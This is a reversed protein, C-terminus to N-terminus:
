ENSVRKNPVTLRNSINKGISRRCARLSERLNFLRNRHAFSPGLNLHSADDWLDETVETTKRFFLFDGNRHIHSRKVHHVVSLRLEIGVSLSQTIDSISSFVLTPLTNSSSYHVVNLEAYVFDFLTGVRDNHM